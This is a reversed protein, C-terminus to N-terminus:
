SSAKALTWQYIDVLVPWFVSQSWAIVAWFNLFTKMLFYAGFCMALQLSRWHLCKVLPWVFSCFFVLFRWCSIVCHFWNSFITEFSWFFITLSKSPIPNKTCFYVEEFSNYASLSFGLKILSSLANVMSSFTWVVIVLSLVILSSSFGTKLFTISVSFEMM